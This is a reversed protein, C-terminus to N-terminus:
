SEKLRSFRKDKKPAPVIGNNVRDLNKVTQDFKSEETCRRIMAELEALDFPKQIYDYAGLRVAEASNHISAFGTMMIVKTSPRIKKLEMLVEMGSLDPMILDLLVADYKHALAKEVAEKGSGAEDTQYNRTRLFRSLPLRVGDNDDVVLIRGM